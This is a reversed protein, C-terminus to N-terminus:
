FYTVNICSCIKENKIPYMLFTDLIPYMLFTDLLSHFSHIKTTFKSLYYYINYYINYLNVVNFRTQTYIQLIKKFTVVRDCYRIKKKIKCCFTKITYM